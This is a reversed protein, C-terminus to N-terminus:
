HTQVDKREKEADERGHKYGHDLAMKYHFCCKEIIEHKEGHAILVDRIYNCHDEALKSM